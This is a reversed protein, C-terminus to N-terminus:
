LAEIYKSRGEALLVRAAEITKTRGLYIEQGKIKLRVKWRNRTSDFCIGKDPDRQYLMNLSQTTLVLNKRRNDLGNHNRHHIIKDSPPNLLFRHLKIDGLSGCFAYVTACRDKAEATWSHERVKEYDEPDVYAEYGASLKIVAVIALEQDLVRDEITVRARTATKSRM